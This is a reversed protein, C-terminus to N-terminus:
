REEWRGALTGTVLLVVITTVVSVVTVAVIDRRVDSWVRIASVAAPVFFLALYKLLLDAGDAVWRLPVIDTLLLVALAIAGLVSGPIPSHLARAGADCGLYLISLVAIQAVARLWKM